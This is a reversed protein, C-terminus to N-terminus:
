TSSLIGCEGLLELSRRPEPQFWSVEESDKTAYVNTWHVPRDAMTKAGKGGSLTAGALCTSLAPSLAGSTRTFAAPLSGRAAEGQM